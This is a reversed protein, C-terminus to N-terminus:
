MLRENDIYSIQGRKEGSMDVTSNWFYDIGVAILRFLEPHRDARIKVENDAHMTHPSTRMLQAPLYSDVQPPVGRAAKGLFTNKDLLLRAGTVSGTVSSLLFFCFIVSCDRATAKRIYTVPRLVQGRHFFVRACGNKRYWVDM